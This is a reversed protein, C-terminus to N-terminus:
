GFERWFWISIAFALKRWVDEHICSLLCAECLLKAIDLSTVALGSSCLFCYFECSTPMMRRKCYTVIETSNLGDRTLHILVNAKGKRIM